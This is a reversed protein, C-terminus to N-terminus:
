REDMFTGHFTSKNIKTGKARFFKGDVDEDM